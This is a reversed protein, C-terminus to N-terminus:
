ILELLFNRITISLKKISYKNFTCIDSNGPLFERYNLLKLRHLLQPTEPFSAAEQNTASLLPVHNVAAPFCVLLNLAFLACSDLTLMLSIYFAPGCLKFNYM